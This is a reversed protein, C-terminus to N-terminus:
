KDLAYSHITKTGNLSIYTFILNRKDEKEFLLLLNEDSAEKSEYFSLEAQPVLFKHLWTIENTDLNIVAPYMTKSGANEFDARIRVLMYQGDTWIYYHGKMPDINTIDSLIYRALVNGSLRDIQVVCNDGPLWANNEQFYQISNIDLEESLIYYNDITTTTKEQAKNSIYYRDLFNKSSDGQLGSQSGQVMVIFEGDLGEQIDELWYNCRHDDVDLTAIKENGIKSQAYLNGTTNGDFWYTINNKQLISSTSEVYVTSLEANWEVKCGLSESIFRLPVLTSGNLIKPPSDLQVERVGSASSIQANKEQIIMNISTGDYKTATISLSEKNWQVTAGLLEFIRRMPVLIRNNEIHLTENIEIPEQQNAFSILCKVSETDAAMIPISFLFCLLIVLTYIKKSYM